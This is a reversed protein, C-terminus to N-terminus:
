SDSSVWDPYKGIFTDVTDSHVASLLELSEPTLRERSEGDVKFSQYKGANTKVMTIGDGSIGGFTLLWDTLPVGGTDVTLAKGAAKLVSDLKAPNTIVGKGAASKAVAKLFQQQHRQRGYDGDGKELLDRQRVFDLAQWPELHRCGKEYVVARVGPVARLNPPQGKYPVRQKGTSDFGVHISTVREDICMDVGGLAEVIAKFGEFDVIAGADFTIGTLNKITLALLEFGGARGGSGNSGFAYASNIKGRGGKYGTKPYAPIAVDSDRPVSIIFARDHTAPIHLIIISDARIAQSPDGRTDIGMLLVNIPGKLAAKGGGQRGGAGLLSTQEISGTYRDLLVAGAALTGGSILILVAGVVVLM